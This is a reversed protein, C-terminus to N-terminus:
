SEFALVVAVREQEDDVVVDADIGADAAIRRPEDIVLAVRVALGDDVAPADEDLRDARDLGALFEAVVVLEGPLARVIGLLQM